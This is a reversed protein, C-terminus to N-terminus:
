TWLHNTFLLELQCDVVFRNHKSLCNVCISSHYIDEIISVVDIELELWLTPVGEVIIGPCKTKSREKVIRRRKSKQQSRRKNNKQRTATENDEVDEIERANAIIKESSSDGSFGADLQVTSVPKTLPPLGIKVRVKNNQEFISEDNEIILTSVTNVTCRLPLLFASISM